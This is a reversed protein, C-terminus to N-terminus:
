TSDREELADEGILERIAEDVAPDDWEEVAPKYGKIGEIYPCDAPFIGAKVGEPVEMCGPEAEFRNEYVTCLKTEPDLFRCYKKSIYITGDVEVKETCCKGCRTCLEEWVELPLDEPKM